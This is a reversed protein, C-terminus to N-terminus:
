SADGNVADFDRFQLLTENNGVPANNCGDVEVNESPCKVEEQLYFIYYNRRSKQRGGVFPNEAKNKKSWFDDKVM